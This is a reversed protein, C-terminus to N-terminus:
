GCHEDITRELAVACAPCFYETQLSFMICDVGSRFMGRAYGNAGEYCGPRRPDGNRALLAAQRGREERMLKEIVAEHAGSERLRNYRQVYVAFRRDYETKNWPTPRPAEARGPRPRRWRSGSTYRSAAFAARCSTCAESSM